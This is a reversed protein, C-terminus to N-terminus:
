ILLMFHTEHVGRVKGTHDKPVNKKDQRERARANASAERIARRRLTSQARPGFRPTRVDVMPHNQHNHTELKSSASGNSAASSPEMAVSTPTPGEHPTGFLSSDHDVDVGRLNNEPNVQTRSTSLPPSLSSTASSLQACGELISLGYSRLPTSITPRNSVLEAPNSHRGSPPSERIVEVLDRRGDYQVITGKVQSSTEAGALRCSSQIRSNRMHSLTTFASMEELAPENHISQKLSPSTTEVASPFCIGKVAVSERNASRSAQGRKLCM